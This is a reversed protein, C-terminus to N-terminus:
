EAAELYDTAMEALMFHHLPCAEYDDWTAFPPNIPTAATVGPYGQALARAKAAARQARHREVQLALRSRAADSTERRPIPLRHFYAPDAM